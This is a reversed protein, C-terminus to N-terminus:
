PWLHKLVEFYLKEHGTQDATVYEHHFFEVFISVFVIFMTKIKSFSKCVKKTRDVWEYVAYRNMASEVYATQLM